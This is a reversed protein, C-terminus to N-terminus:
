AEVLQDLNYFVDPDTLEGLQDPPIIRVKTEYDEMYVVGVSLEETPTKSIISSLLYPNHTTLFYQNTTDLAIREAIYKTYFPFTHAEPEDFLLTSNKNSEIALMLFIIRKITESVLPYKFNYLEDNEEKTLMIEREVPNINLRYGNEKLFDAVIKRLEKNSYILLPLNDGDPASLHNLDTGGYNTLHKNFNYIRVGLDSFAGSAVSGEGKLNVSFRQKLQGHLAQLFTFNLEKKSYSFDAKEGNIEIQIPVSIDFNYFLDSVVTFRFTERFRRPLNHSLLAVGELINTKGKNPEGIFVNVRKCDLEM